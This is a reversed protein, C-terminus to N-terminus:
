GAPASASECPARHLARVSGAPLVPGLAEAAKLASRLGAEVSAAHPFAFVALGAEVRALEAGSAALRTLLTPVDVSTRM